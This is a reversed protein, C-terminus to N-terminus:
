RSKKSIFSNEDIFKQLRNKLMKTFLKGFCSSISIGRFNNPYDKENLKHIPNLIDKKWCNPYFSVKCISNFLHLFSSKYIKGSVKLIENTIKDFSSAKNNKLGKLASEFEECSFPDDLETIFNGVNKLFYEDFYHKQANDM